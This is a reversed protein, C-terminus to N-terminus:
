AKRGAEVLVCPTDLGHRWARRRTTAAPRATAGFGTHESHLLLSLGM